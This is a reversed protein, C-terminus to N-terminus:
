KIPLFIELVQAWPKASVSHYIEFSPINSQVLGKKKCYKELQKWFLSLLSGSGHHVYSIVRGPRFSEKKIFQKFEQKIVLRKKPILCIKMRSDKPRYGTDLFIVMSTSNGTANRFMGALEACYKHIESYAGVKEIYFINLPKMRQVKPAVMTGNKEINENIDEISQLNFSLRKIEDEIQSKKANFLTTVNKNHKLFEAIDQLAIGLTTLLHIMQYDLIQKQEYYRYDGVKKAPKLIDSKDYWAITRKSTSALKAFEGTTLLDKM